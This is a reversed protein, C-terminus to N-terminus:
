NFNKSLSAFARGPKLIGAKFRTIEDGESSFIRKSILDASGQWTVGFHLAIYFFNNFCAVFM